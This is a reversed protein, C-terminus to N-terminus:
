NKRVMFRGFSKFGSKPRTTSKASVPRSNLGASIPRSSGKKSSGPVSQKPGSAISKKATAGLPLKDVENVTSLSAKGGKKQTKQAAIAEVTKTAEKETKMRRAKNRALKARWVKAYKRAADEPKLKKGKQRGRNFYLMMMQAKLIEKTYDSIDSADDRIARRDYCFELLKAVSYSIIFFALLAAVTIVAKPVTDNPDSITLTGTSNTTESISSNTTTNTAETTDSFLFSIAHVTLNQIENSRSRSHGHVKFKRNVFM